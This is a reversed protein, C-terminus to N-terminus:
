IQRATKIVLHNNVIWKSVATHRLSTEYRLVTAPAMDIGSLTRCKENHERFLEMLTHREPKDKGLYRDVIAQVTVNQADDQEMDRHIRILKARVVIAAEGHKNTRTTRVYFAVSFTSREM